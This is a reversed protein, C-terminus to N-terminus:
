PIGRFHSKLSGQARRHVREVVALLQGEVGAQVDGLEHFSLVRILFTEHNPLEWLQFKENFNTTFILNGGFLSTLFELQVQIFQERENQLREYKLIERM